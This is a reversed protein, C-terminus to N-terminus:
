GHDNAEGLTAEEAVVGDAILVTRSVQRALDQDHTVM